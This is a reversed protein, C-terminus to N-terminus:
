SVAARFAARFEDPAELWPEHGADPIIVVQCGLRTGLRRLFDAPRSDGAGGIIVTRAPLAARLDDVRSELADVKKDANLQRNMAYNVPRQVRAAALAWEWARDRDAHDTFWSLALYETEEDETRAAIADLEELRAQQADSRRSRQTARDAERWPGLFPGALLVLGAVRSPHALLFHAALDTGYSHGVLVARQHGWADLLTALDRVHRAITHEGEWPSGGTGRQDYRHVECLDEILAAVPALYDPLGPGGNIMVVPTAGAPGTTWTRLRVGDDMEIM